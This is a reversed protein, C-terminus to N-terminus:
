KFMIVDFLYELGILISSVFGGAMFGLLFTILSVDDIIIFSATSFVIGGLLITRISDQMLGKKFPKIAKKKRIEMLNNWYYKLRWYLYSIMFLTWPIGYYFLIYKGRALDLISIVLVLIVPFFIIVGIVKLNKAFEDYGRFDEDDM